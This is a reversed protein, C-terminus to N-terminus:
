EIGKIENLLSKFENEIRDPHPEDKGLYYPIVVTEKSIENTITVVISGTDLDFNLVKSPSIKIRSFNLLHYSYVKAKANIVKVIQKYYRM